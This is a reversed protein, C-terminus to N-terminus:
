VEKRSHVEEFVLELTKEIENKIDQYEGPFYAETVTFEGLVVECTEAIDDWMHLFGEQMCRRMAKKIIERAEQKVDM